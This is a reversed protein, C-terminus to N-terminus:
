LDKSNDGYILYFLENCTKRFDEEQISDPLSFMINMYESLENLREIALRNKINLVNKYGSYVKEYKEMRYPNEHLFNKLEDIGSNNLLGVLGNFQNAYDQSVGTLPHIQPVEKIAEPSFDPNM